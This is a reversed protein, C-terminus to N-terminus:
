SSLTTAGISRVVALRNGPRVAFMHVAQESVGYKSGIQEHTLDGEALDLLVQPKNRGRLM